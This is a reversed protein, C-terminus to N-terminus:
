YRTSNEAEVDLAQEMTLGGLAARSMSAKSTLLETRRGKLDGRHVTNALLKWSLGTVLHAHEEQITQGDPTKKTVTNKMHAAIVLELSKRIEAQIDKPYLSILAYTYREWTYGDPLQFKGGYGYLESAAYRGATAAGHVRRLMKSWLEPWAEAYIALNGLPEEGFPPCVRQQNVPMGAATMVDYSRNHDWGFLRPATWVDISTWDYIPSVPYSYGARAGGIWNDTLKSCVARYRRLSEDARLGRVDAITKVKGAPSYVLHAIDPITAGWYFGEMETIACEPLDRVWLEKEHPNWPHWWPHTRSCANRHVIPICLWKLRVEKLKRVRHLYDVTEPQIAEEDWFYVDLPLRKREKAVKLALNLCVTSDKGGSFSVVVQDFRDYLIHFRELAAEYVSKNTDKKNYIRRPM